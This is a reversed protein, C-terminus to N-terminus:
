KNQREIELYLEVPLVSQQFPMNESDSDNSENEIDQLHGLIELPDRNLPTALSELFTEKDAKIKNFLKAMYEVVAITDTQIGRTLFSPMEEISEGNNLAKNIGKDHDLEWLLTHLIQDAILNGEENREEADPSEKDPTLDIQDAKSKPTTMMPLLPDDDPIANEINRPLSPQSPVELGENSDQSSKSKQLDGFSEEPRWSDIIPSDSGSREHRSKVSNSLNPSSNNVDELDENILSKKGSSLDNNIRDSLPSKKKIEINPSFSKLSKEKPEAKEKLDNSKEQIELDKNDKLDKYEEKHDISSKSDNAPQFESSKSSSSSSKEKNMNQQYYKVINKYEQNIYEVSDHKDEEIKKSDVGEEWDLSGSSLDAKYIEEKLKEKSIKPPVIEFNSIEEIKNKAIKSAITNIKFKSQNPRSVNRRRLSNWGGNDSTRNLSKNWNHSFSSGNLTGFSNDSRWFSLGSVISSQSTPSLRGRRQEIKRYVKDRDKGLHGIIENAKMWGQVLMNKTQKIQKNESEVWREIVEKKRRYSKDSIRRNKLM